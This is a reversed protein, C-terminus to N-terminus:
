GLQCFLDGAIFFLLEWGSGGGVGVFIIGKLFLHQTFHLGGWSGWARELWLM